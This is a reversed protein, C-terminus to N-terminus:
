RKPHLTLRVRCILGGEPGNILVVDGGHARGPGEGHLAAGLHAVVDGDVV